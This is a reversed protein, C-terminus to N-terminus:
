SLCGGDNEQKLKGAYFDKLEEITNGTGSCAHGCTSYDDCIFNDKWINLSFGCQPCETTLSDKFGKEYPLNEMVWKKLDAM